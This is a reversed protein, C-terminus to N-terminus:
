QVTEIKLTHQEVSILNAKHQFPEAEVPHGKQLRILVVCSVGVFVLPVEKSQYIFLRVALESKQRRTSQSPRFVSTNCGIKLMQGLQYAETWPVQYRRQPRWYSTKM